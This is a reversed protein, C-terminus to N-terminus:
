LIYKMDWKAKEGVRDMVRTAVESGESDGLM